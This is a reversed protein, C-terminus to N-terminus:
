HMFRDDYPAVAIFLKVNTLIINMISDYYFWPYSLRDLSLCRAPRGRNSESCPCSIKEEGYRRAPGLQGAVCHTGHSREM